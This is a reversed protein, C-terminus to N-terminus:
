TELNVRQMELNFWLSGPLTELARSHDELAGPQAQLARSSNWCNWPSGRKDMSLNWQELSLKVPHGEVEWSRGKLEQIFRKSWRQSSHLCNLVSIAELLTSMLRWWSLELIVWTIRWSERLNLGLSATAKVRLHSVQSWVSCGSSWYYGLSLRCQELIPWHTKLAWHSGGTNWTPVGSSWPSGGFSCIKSEQKSNAEVAGSKLRLIFTIVGLYAGLAGALARM